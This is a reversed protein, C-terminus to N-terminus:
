QLPSFAAPMVIKYIMAVRRDRHGRATAAAVDPV